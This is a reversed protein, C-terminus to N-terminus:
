ASAMDLLQEYVSRWGHWGDYESVSDNHWITILQGDVAKVENVLKQLLQVSEAPQMKLYNKFTGDMAACPFIRLSTSQEYDLDFFCHVTCTGARFGPEGAYLMTYDEKIDHSILRQYTTPMKLQLYHQRSRVVERKLVEQLGELETRLRSGDANSAFSPHLGVPFYDAISKILQQFRPNFLSHATDYGGYSGM